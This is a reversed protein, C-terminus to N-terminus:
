VSPSSAEQAGFGSRRRLSFWSATAGFSFVKTVKTEETLFSIGDPLDSWELCFIVFSVFIRNQEVTTEQRSVFAAV